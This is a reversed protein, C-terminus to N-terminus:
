YVLIILQFMKWSNVLFKRIIGGFYICGQSAGLGASCLCALAGHYQAQICGKGKCNNTKAARLQLIFLLINVHNGDDDDGHDDQGPTSSTPLVSDGGAGSGCPPSDCSCRFGSHGDQSCTEGRQCPSSVCPFDWVCGPRIDQTELVDPLGIVRGDLEIDRLCGHYSSSAAKM